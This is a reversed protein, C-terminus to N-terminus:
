SKAEEIAGEAQSLQNGLETIEETTSIKPPSPIEIHAKTRAFAEALTRNTFQECTYGGKAFVSIRYSIEPGTENRHRWMEMCILFSDPAIKALENHAELVTM